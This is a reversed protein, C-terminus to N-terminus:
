HDYAKRMLAQGEADLLSFTKLASRSMMANCSIFDAEPQFREEQFKRVTMLRQRVVSSPEVRSEDLLRDFPIEPVEVQMDVRDPPPGSIKGQYRWIEQPTSQNQDPMAGDPTPNMAAVLM